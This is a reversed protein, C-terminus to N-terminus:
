TIESESLEFYQATSEPAARKKAGDKVPFGNSSAATFSHGFKLSKPSKKLFSVMSSYWTITEHMVADKVPYGNSSALLFSPIITIESHAFQPFHPYLLM